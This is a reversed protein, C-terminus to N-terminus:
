RKGGTNQLGECMRDLTRIWYDRIRPTIGCQEPSLDNMGAIGCFSTGAGRKWYFVGTVPGSGGTVRVVFVVGVDRKKDKAEFARIFNWGTSPIVVSEGTSPASISWTRLVSDAALKLGEDTKQATLFRLGILALTFSAFLLATMAMRRANKDTGNTM